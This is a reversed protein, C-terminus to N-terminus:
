RGRQAHAADVEDLPLLHSGPVHEASYEGPTRVDIIACEGNGGMRGALEFASVARIEDKGAGQAKSAKYAESLVAPKSMNM